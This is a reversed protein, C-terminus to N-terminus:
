LDFRRIVPDKAKISDHWYWNRSLMFWTKHKVNLIHKINYSQELPFIHIAVL